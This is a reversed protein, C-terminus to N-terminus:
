TRSRILILLSGGLDHMQSLQHRVGQFAADFLGRPAFGLDIRASM